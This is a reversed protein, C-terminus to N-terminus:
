GMRHNSPNVGYKDRYAKYFNRYSSFGTRNAIETIKVATNVILDNAKEIRRNLHYKYPTTGYYENFISQMRSLSLNFMDALEPMSYYSDLNDDLFKKLNIVSQVQFETYTKMKEHEDNDMANIFFHFISITKIYVTFRDDMEMARYLSSFLEDIYDTKFFKIGCRLIRSNLVKRLVLADWDNKEFLEIMEDIYAFVGIAKIKVVGDAAFKENINYNGSFCFIDGKKFLINLGRDDKLMFRGELIEAIYISDEKYYPADLMSLPVMVNIDSLIPYIRNDSYLTVFSGEGYMPNMKFTARNGDYKADAPDGWLDYSFDKRDTSLM